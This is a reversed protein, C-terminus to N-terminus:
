NTEEDEKQSEKIQQEQQRMQEGLMGPMSGIYVGDDINEAPEEDKRWETLASKLNDEDYKSYAKFWEFTGEYKERKLVKKYMEENKSAGYQKKQEKAHTESVLQIDLRKSEESFFLKMFHEYFDEKTIENLLAVCRQPRDFIFQFNMIEQWLRMDEQEFDNVQNSLADAMAKKLTEFDKKSFSKVAKKMSYLFDNICKSM